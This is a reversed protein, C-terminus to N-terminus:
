CKWWFIFDLTRKVLSETIWPYWIYLSIHSALQPCTNGQKHDTPFTNSGKAMDTMLSLSITPWTGLFIRSSNWQKQLIMDCNLICYCFSVLEWSIKSYCRAINKHIALLWSIGSFKFGEFNFVRVTISEKPLIM